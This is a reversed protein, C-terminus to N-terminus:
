DVQLLLKDESKHRRYSTIEEDGSKEFDGFSDFTMVKGKSTLFFVRGGLYKASELDHTVVISTVGEGHFKKILDDVQLVLGEEMGVTPEDYVILRPRYALTRAIAVRKRMGGSLKTPWSNADKSFRLGVSELSQKVIETIERESKNTHERFWLAINDFVTASFLANGQFIYGMRKRLADQEGESIGWFNKGFIYIEGSDPANNVVHTMLVSKGSGSGGLLCVLEGRNVSLSVGRLIQKRNGNDKFSKYVNVFELEPEQGM